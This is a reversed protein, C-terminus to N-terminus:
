DYEVCCYLLFGQIANCVPDSSQTRLMNGNSHYLSNLSETKYNNDSQFTIFIAFIFIWFFNILHCSSKHTAQKLFKQRQTNILLIFIENQFSKLGENFLPFYLCVFLGIYPQSTFPNISFVTFSPRKTVVFLPFMRGSVAFWVKWLLSLDTCFITWHHLGCKPHIFDKCFVADHFFYLFVTDFTWLVLIEDLM